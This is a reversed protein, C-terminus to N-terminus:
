DRKGNQNRRLSTQFRNQNIQITKMIIENIRVLDMKDRATIQTTPNRTEKKELTKSLDKKKPPPKLKINQYKLIHETHSDSSCQLLNWQFLM